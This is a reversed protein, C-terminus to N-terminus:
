KEETESVFDQPTIVQFLATNLEKSGPMEECCMRVRQGCEVGRHSRGTELLRRWGRAQGGGRAGKCVKHAECLEPCLGYQASSM